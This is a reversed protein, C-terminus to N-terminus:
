ALAAVAGTRGFMLQERLEGLTAGERILDFYWSGDSTDGYLCAGVLRGERLVLKRYVGDVPDSLLIQESDDDGM